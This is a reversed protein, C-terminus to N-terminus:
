DPEDDRRRSESNERVTAEVLASVRRQITAELMGLMKRRIRADVQAFRRGGRRAGRAFAARREAFTDFLAM